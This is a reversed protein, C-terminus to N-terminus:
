VTTSALHPTKVASLTTYYKGSATNQVKVKYVYPFDELIRKADEGRMPAPNGRLCIGREGTQMSVQSGLLQYM